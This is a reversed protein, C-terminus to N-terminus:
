AAMLREQEALADEISPVVRIISSLRAIELVRYVGPQDHHVVAYLKADRATLIKYAHILASLGSSDIYSIDTLIVIVARTGLNIATDLINQFEPVTYLDIEGHAIVVPIGKRNVLETSLVTEESM